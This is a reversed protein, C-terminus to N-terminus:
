FGSDAGIHSVNANILTNNADVLMVAFEINSTNNVLGSPVEFDYKVNYVNNAVAEGAPIADGLVNTFAYRLVHNHVFNNITAVGGYYDTYNVQDYILGNELVLVVLKAGTLNQSFASSVVLSINNGNYVSNVSIGSANTGQALSTVQAVNNPEPYTWEAARNVYATPFGTVGFASALQLSYTNEFPENNALHAAVVVVNETQEEVLEIGYAVRPCWGCWTGTYDEILARQTFSAPAAENDEVTVMITSTTMEGLTAYAEITGTEGPIIKNGTVSESGDVFVVSASTVTNTNGNNDTGVVTYEVTDGVNYTSANSTIDISVLVPLVTITKTTSTLDAYTAKVVYEGTAAPTYTHGTIAADSVLITADATVDTGDNTKVTFSFETGFDAFLTSPTISISTVGSGNGGGDGNDESSGCSFLATVAVFLFIKFLNKTNM